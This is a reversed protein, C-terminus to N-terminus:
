VTLVRTDTNVIVIGKAKRARPLPTSPRGATHSRPGIASPANTSTPRPPLPFPLPFRSFTHHGATPDVPVLVEDRAAHRRRSSVSFRGHSSRHPFHRRGKTSQAFWSQHNLDRCGLVQWPTWVQVAIVNSLSGVVSPLVSPIFLKNPLSSVLWRFGAHAQSARGSSPSDVNFRM